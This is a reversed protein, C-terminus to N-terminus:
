ADTIQLKKGFHIMSADYFYCFLYSIDIAQVADSFCVLMILFMNLVVKHSNFACTKINLFLISNAISLIM